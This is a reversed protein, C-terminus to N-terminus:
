LAWNQETGNHLSTRCSDGPDALLVALVYLLENDGKVAVIKM